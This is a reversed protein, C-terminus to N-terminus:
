DEGQNSIIDVQCDSAREVDKKLEPVVKCRKESIRSIHLKSDESSNLKVEVRYSENFSHDRTPAKGEKLKMAKLELEEEQGELVKLM